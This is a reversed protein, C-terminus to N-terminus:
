MTYAELVFFLRGGMSFHVSTGPSLSFCTGSKCCQLIIVDGEEDFSIAVRGCYTVCNQLLDHPCAGRLENVDLVVEVDNEDYIRQFEEYGPYCRGKQLSMKVALM